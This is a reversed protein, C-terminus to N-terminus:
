TCPMCGSILPKLPMPKAPSLDLVTVFTHLTAAGRMTNYQAVSELKLFEDMVCQIQLEFKSIGIACPADYVNFCYYHYSYGYNLYSVAWYRV